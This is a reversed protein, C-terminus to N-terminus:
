KNRVEKDVIDREMVAFSLVAVSMFIFFAVCCFLVVAKSPVYEFDTREGLDWFLAGVVLALMSYMTVHTGLIGLNFCLNLFYRYTLEFAVFLSNFRRTLIYDKSM